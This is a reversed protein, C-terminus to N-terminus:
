PAEDGAAGDGLRLLFRRRGRQEILYTGVPAGRLEAGAPDPRFRLRPHPGPRRPLVRAVASATRRLCRLPSTVFV